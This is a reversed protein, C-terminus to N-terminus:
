DLIPKPPDTSYDYFGRGTKRGLDGRKVRKELEQPPKDNPDKTVEYTELRANYGIDLGSLDGLKFPGLPHNLGLEVAKDIDAHNAVGQDLCYYAERVLARLIRNVLFGPLERRLVVADRGSRRAVEATIEVTEESTAQGKVVEVLKMVLPPYFYHMNVCKDPRRTASAIQSNMLTSSNTALIAHPPCVRDLKAFCERKPELREVIAEIVFDADRGAKELDPELRVRAIAEEMQDKTMQGKQVRRELQKRNGAMGKQLLDMSLDNLTLAYGHLASQMAIQAGMQGAGVVLIRKVDDTKM